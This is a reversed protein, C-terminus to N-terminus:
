QAALFWVPNVEVAFPEFFQTSHGKRFLGRKATRYPVYIYRSYGSGELQVRLGDSVPPSYEKPINVNAALAAALISGETVQKSFADSLLRYIDTPTPRETGDYGGAATVQGDTRITAGFPYFDGSDELMTRGFDMCYKLLEHLQEPTAM